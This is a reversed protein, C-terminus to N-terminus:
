TFLKYRGKGPKAPQRQEAAPKLEPHLSKFEPGAKKLTLLVGLSTIWQYLQTFNLNPVKSVKFQQYIIRSVADQFTPNRLM